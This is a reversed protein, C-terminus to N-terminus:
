RSSYQIQRISRGGFVSTNKVSAMKWDGDRGKLARVTYEFYISQRNKIKAGSECNYHMIILFNSIALVM